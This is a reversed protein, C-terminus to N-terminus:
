PTKVVKTTSKEIVGHFINNKMHMMKDEASALAVFLALSAIFKM